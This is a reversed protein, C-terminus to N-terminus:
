RSSSNFGSCVCFWRESGICFASFCRGGGVADIGKKIRGEEERTIEERRELKRVGLKNTAKVIYLYISVYFFLKFINKISVQSPGHTDICCWLNNCAQISLLSSVLILPCLTPCTRIRKRDLGKEKRMSQKRDKTDYTLLCVTYCM